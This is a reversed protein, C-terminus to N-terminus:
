LFRPHSFSSISGGRYIQVWVLTEHYVDVSTEFCVQNIITRLTHLLSEATIIYYDGSLFFFPKSLWLKILYYQERIQVSVEWESDMVVHMMRTICWADSCKMICGIRSIIIFYKKGLYNLITSFSKLFKM